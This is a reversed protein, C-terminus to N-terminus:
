RVRKKEAEVAEHAKQQLVAAVEPSMGNPIFTNGVASIGSLTEFWTLGALYCGNMNAHHGDYNVTTKGDKTKATYGVHLSHSQDPLKPDEAKPDFTPDPKFGWNPDSDALNFADGSPIIRKVGLEAAITRYNNSLDSYMKERSYPKSTSKFLPDDVRYAWTEHVVLEATPAYKTILEKLKAAYPRYTAIDKSNISAQQITVVDWTGATILEKTTKGKYLEKARPDDQNAEGLEATNWHRQLTCGGALAGNLTIKVNAAEAIKRLYQWSNGTFSNGFSFVRITQVPKVEDARASLTIQPVLLAGALLLQGLFLRRKM